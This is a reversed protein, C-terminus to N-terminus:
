ERLLNVNFDQGKVNIVKSVETDFMTYLAIREEPTPNDATFRILNRTGDKLSQEYELVLKKPKENKSPPPPPPPTFSDTQVFYRQNIKISDLIAAKIAEKTPKKMAEIELRKMEEEHTNKYSQSLNLYIVGVITLVLM